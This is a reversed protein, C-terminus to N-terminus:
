KIVAGIGRIQYITMTGDKKQAHIKKGDQKCDHKKSEDHEKGFHRMYRETQEKNLDIKYFEGEVLATKGKATVPFVIEGDKVKIRITQHPKDSALRMWCGRHECVGVVVGKVLVKKGLFKDPHALIESIKTIDKDKITIKQGLELVNDAFTISNFFLFFVSMLCISFFLAKKM